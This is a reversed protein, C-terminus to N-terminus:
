DLKAIKSQVEAKNLLPAPSLEMASGSKLDPEFLKQVKFWLETLNV